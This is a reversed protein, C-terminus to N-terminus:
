KLHEGREIGDAADNCEIRGAISVYGEIGVEPKEGWRMRLWKVIAAREESAGEEFGYFHGDQSAAACDIDDNPNPDYPNLPHKTANLEDLDSHNSM